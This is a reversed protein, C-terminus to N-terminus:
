MAHAAEPQPARANRLYHWGSWVALVVAVWLWGKWLWTADRATWPM